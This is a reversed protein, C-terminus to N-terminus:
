DEESFMRYKGVVKFESGGRIEGTFVREPNKKLFEAAQSKNHAVNMLLTEMEQDNSLDLEDLRLRIQLFVKGM